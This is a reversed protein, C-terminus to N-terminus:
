PKTILERFFDIDNKYNKLKEKDLEVVNYTDKTIIFVYGNNNNDISYELIAENKGLVSQVEKVSMVKGGALEKYKPYKKYIEGLTKQYDNTLKNLEINEADTSKNESRKKAIISNYGAIKEKLESLEKIYKPEIEKSKFLADM